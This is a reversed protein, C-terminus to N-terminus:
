YYEMRRYLPICAISAQMAPIGVSEFSSRSFSDGGVLTQSQNEQGFHHFSASM